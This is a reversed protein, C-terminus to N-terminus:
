ENSPLLSFMWAYEMATEKHRKFRGSAGSHGTEMNTHLLLQRNDTKLDRLLAVWKAPEWYQVQSDHLGTTVLMNPYDKATVNDYPSYSKIYYYFAEDNPNGWEDYEGTTLPISEDLMTTVVDVFPVAAIVGLYEDGAMNVVAGMLLGGASGGMAFLKDPASYGEGKLYKSCAIFDTFTNKKDLLKGDEYWQRGMYQGGRIHAIAFVFGRDLLSLRTSSFSPDVTIGYSGYGYILCPNEGKKYLDKKYVLSIPIKTGDDATAWVRESAYDEPNHGGVVEQVKLVERERSNMDYEIVSTPTTLSSYVFRLLNTEFEPNVSTGATYTEEPFEVYHEEGSWQMIRIRNLGNSREEVVLHDSFIEIGELLVDERHPIVEKWNEKETNSIDTKMLKFNTAGGENTVIYFNDEFHAVRYELGRERPQLIRFEADPQDAPVFRYEDSMTSSSGIFIFDQSKSKYVYAAFTPDDEQFVIVDESVHSGLKHKRIQYPRLTEDKMSYFLTTNDAAWTSGGTTNPIVNELMEGSSLDKVYISYIRRSVTDVGFSIKQNDPSVSLGVVQYYDFGEAMENVNLIVEEEAELSGEKRCYIPYELDKEYRTYYWYGRLQYPVSQDDKPIRGVIEEYLEEQFAETPKLVERTYDNERNLYDIVDPNERDNLWYYHDERVDGHKELNQTKREVDPPVIAMEEPTNTNSNECGVLVVASMLLLHVFNKM